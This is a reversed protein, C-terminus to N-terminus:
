FSEELEKLDNLWLTKPETGKLVDRETTLKIIENTLKDVNDKTMQRVNLSM